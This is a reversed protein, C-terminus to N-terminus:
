AAEGETNTLAARARLAAAGRRRQEDRLMRLLRLGHYRRWRRVGEQLNLLAASTPIAVNLAVWHAFEPPLRQLLWVAVVELRRM